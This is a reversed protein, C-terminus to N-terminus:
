QRADQREPVPVLFATMAKPTVAFLVGCEPCRECSRWEGLYPYRDAVAMGAAEPTEFEGIEEDHDREHISLRWM